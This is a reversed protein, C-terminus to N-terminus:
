VKKQKSALLYIGFIAVFFLAEIGIYTWYNSYSMAEGSFGSVMNNTKIYWYAPLFRSIALVTDGLLWQPVFIGCLFSMGLGIVNSFMNLINTNKAFLSVLLSIAASIILFLLSNLAGLLGKVSFLVNFGGYFGGLAIFLVWLIFSYIICGMTLQTNRSRLTLAACNIRSKIDKKNLIILIPAMGVILISLMIYPVYQFYYFLNDSRSTDQKEEFDIINIDSKDLLQKTTRNFAEDLPFGGSIYLTVTSMFEDIQQGAFYSNVNDSLKSHSLLNGTDGEELKKEFDKKITLVYDIEQYYLNDQIINKDKTDLDILTHSKSLFDTLAKSSTSNDEDIIYLKLPSVSFNKENNEGANMSMVILLIGFIGLYILVASMRKKAIKFFLKFVQM